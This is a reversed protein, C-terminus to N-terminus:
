AFSSVIIHRFGLHEIGGAENRSLVVKKGGKEKSEENETERPRWFGKRSKSLLTKPTLLAVSASNSNAVNRVTYAEGPVLGRQAEGQRLVGKLEERGVM